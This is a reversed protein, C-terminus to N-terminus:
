VGFTQMRMGKEFGWRRWERGFRAEMLAVYEEEGYPRGAYTCRRLLRLESTSEESGLLEVWGAAGGSDLWFENDLLSYRDKVLGLHAAASSWKYLEPSGVVGARVPNREVYVLARRLHSPSLACSYFRNQWLHGSRAMRANVMQAYRGNVRRMLVALSDEREPVAVLHVHNRMLCWGLLRVGADSLNLAMLRLYASRDSDTFFVRQRNTGRQTLHYAQDPAVCRQNRPM